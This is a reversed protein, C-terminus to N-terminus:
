RRRALGHRPSSRRHKGARQAAARARAEAVWSTPGVLPARRPNPHYRFRTSVRRPWDLRRRVIRTLAAESRWAADAQDKDVWRTPSFIARNAAEGLEKVHEAPEPGFREGTVSVVEATTLSALEPLGAEQLFDLSEQWAGLLRRRPDGRRRRRRVRLWKRLLMIAVILVAVAALGILVLVAV